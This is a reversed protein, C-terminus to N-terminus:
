VWEKLDISDAEVNLNQAALKTTGTGMFPDLIKSPTGVIKIMMEALEVPYTAPHNVSTNRTKYPVYWVNGRCRLDSQNSKFRGINSKDKFPVGVALRDLTFNGDRSVIFVSEHTNTLYRKSNVPKFHGYSWDETSISKVWTIHSQIVGVESVAIMFKALNVASSTPAGFNIVAVPAVRLSQKVWDKTFEHYDADKMNDKYNGYDIGINYPPSTVVAGYQDESMTSMVEVADGIYNMM